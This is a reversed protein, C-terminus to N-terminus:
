IMLFYLSKDICQGYRSKNNMFNDWNCDNPTRKSLSTYSRNLYQFDAPEPPLRSCRKPYQNNASSAQRQAKKLCSECPYIHSSQRESRVRFIYPEDYILRACSPPCKSRGKQGFTVQKSSKTAM